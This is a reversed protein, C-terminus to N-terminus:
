ESGEEEELEPLIEGKFIWVKVGIRGLTTMAETQAYDIDARLTHLPVRGELMWDRRAMEAGSLRGACAIKVGEAGLRRARSIAQKMARKHSIRRGIQDAVNEAVLQADLEPHAIEQVDIRVKKGTADEIDQRLANVNTGKRGIIIGPKATHITLSIQKPFREIEISSIGAHSMQDRIMERIKIDEQLLDVYEEGEGYWKAKWDKIVGLRFATPNVKRGL